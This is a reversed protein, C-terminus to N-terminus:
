AVATRRRLAVTGAILVVLALVALGWESTAPVNGCGGKNGLTTCDVSHFRGGDELCEEKTIDECSSDPFCCAGLPACNQCTSEQCDPDGDSYVCIDTENQDCLCDDLECGFGIPDDQPISCLANGDRCSFTVSYEKAEDDTATGTVTILSSCPAAGDVCCLKYRVKADRNAVAIPQPTDVTICGPTSSTVTVLSNAKFKNRTQYVKCNAGQVEVATVLLASSALLMACLKSKFFFTM